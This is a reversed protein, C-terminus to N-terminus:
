TDRLICRLRRLLRTVKNHTRTYGYLKHVVLRRSLPQGHRCANYALFCTHLGLLIFCIRDIDDRIWDSQFLLVSHKCFSPSRFNFIGCYIRWFADCSASHAVQDNPHGCGFLCSRTKNGFRSHTCWHNCVTRLHTLVPAFGIVDSSKKYCELIFSVRPIIVDEGFHRSMRKNYLQAFDFSPLKSALKKYAEKQSIDETDSICFEQVFRRYQFVIHHLSSRYLFNKDLHALVVEDSNCILNVCKDYVDIVNRSTMSAVRIRSAQSMLSLDRAKTPLGLHSISKIVQGPIANWPGRLLLQLGRSEVKLISRSPPLFAAVYSLKSLALMNYL